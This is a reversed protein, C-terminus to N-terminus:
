GTAYQLDDTDRAPSQFVLNTHMSVHIVKDIFRTSIEGSDLKERVTGSFATALITLCRPQLPTAPITIM